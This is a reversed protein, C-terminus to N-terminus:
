RPAPAEERVVYSHTREWLTQTSICTKFLYMYDALRARHLMVAALITPRRLFPALGPSLAMRLCRRALADGRSPTQSWQPRPPAPDPVPCASHGPYTQWPASRLLPPLQEVVRDYFAHRMFPELPPPIRITSAIVRRDYFPLLLEVRYRALRSFYEHLHCRMDNSLVVIQLAKELSASGVGTLERDLRDNVVTKLENFVERTFLLKSPRRGRLYEDVAPRRRGQRLLNAAMRNMLLFGLTEGGGDGSFAVGPALGSVAAGLLRATSVGASVGTLDLTWPISTLRVDAAEAFQRAYVQDQFGERALNTAEVEFGLDLLETVIVRSDLGGSLLSRQVNGPRVRCAVAERVARRCTVALEEVPEDALPLTAWDFYCKRSVQGDSAALCENALLVSIDRYVTRRGLPYCVAEQEVYSALEMTKPLIDMREFVGLSTAFLLCGSHVSYFLPRAGLCDAALTLRQTQRDYVCLAFTGNAAALDGPRGAVLSNTVSNLEPQATADLGAAPPTLHLSGALATVDRESVRWGREPLVGLDGHVLVLRSDIYRSVIFDADPAAAAELAQGFAVPQGSSLSFVGAFVSM